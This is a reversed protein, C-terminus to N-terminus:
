RFEWWRRLAWRLRALRPKPYEFVVWPPVDFGRCIQLQAARKEADDEIVYATDACYRRISDVFDEILRWEATELAERRHETWGTPTRTYIRVGGKEERPLLVPVGGLSV